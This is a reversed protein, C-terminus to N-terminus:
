RVPFPVVKGMKEEKKVKETKSRSEKEVDKQRRIGDVSERLSYWFQNENLGNKLALRKATGIVVATTRLLNLLSADEDSQGDYRFSITDDECICSVLATRRAKTLEEVAKEEPTTMTTM